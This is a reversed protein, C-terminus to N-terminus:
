NIDYYPSHGKIKSKTQTIAGVLPLLNKERADYLKRIVVVGGCATSFDGPQEPMEFNIIAYEGNEGSLMKYDKVLIEKSILEKLDVQEADPFIETPLETGFRRTEKETM